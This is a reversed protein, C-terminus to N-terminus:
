QRGILDSPLTEEISDDDVRSLVAHMIERLRKARFEGLKRYVPVRRGVHIAATAPDDVAEEEDLADDESSDDEAEEEEDRAQSASSEGSAGGNEGEEALRLLAHEPPTWIGPLTEIEDAPNNLKLSFTNRRTDWEWQGFAIFRVGRTFRQRNYAIIREAARGSVFWWVVVPKGTREPDSATIEFIYLKPQKPGRNRGVQFGGAVRVYLELSAETGHRLESIRGMNSRDEYRMPLYNLLDEVTAEAADQKGAVTALALALKRATPQGLRPVGFRYLSTIPTDLTIPSTKAM